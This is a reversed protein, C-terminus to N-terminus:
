RVAQRAARVAAIKVRRQFWAPPEVQRRKSGWEFFFRRSALNKTGWFHVFALNLYTGVRKSPRPLPTDQMTTKAFAIYKLTKTTFGLARLLGGGRDLAPWSQGGKRPTWPQFNEPNYKGRFGARTAREMERTAYEAVGRLAQGRLGKEIKDLKRDLRSTDVRITM